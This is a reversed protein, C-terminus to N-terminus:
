KLPITVRNSFHIKQFWTTPCHGELLVIFLTPENYEILSTHNLYPLANM